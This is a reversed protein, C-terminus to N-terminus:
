RLLRELAERDHGTTRAQEVLARSLEDIWADLELQESKLTIGRVVSRRACRVSGDDHALEFRDDGLEVEIKRVRKPGLFGGKREVRARAPFAGEVKAALAEVFARLDGADARLSAALLDFDADTV